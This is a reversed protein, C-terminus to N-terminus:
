NIWASVGGPEEKLYSFLPGGLQEKQRDFAFLDLGNEHVQLVFHPGESNILEAIKQAKEPDKRRIAMFIIATIVNSSQILNDFAFKTEEDDKTSM